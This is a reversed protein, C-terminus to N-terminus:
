KATKEPSMKHNQGMEAVEKVVQEGLGKLPEKINGCHLTSLKMEELKGFKNLDEGPYDKYDKMEEEGEYPRELKPGPVDKSRNMDRM